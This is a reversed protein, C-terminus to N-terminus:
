TSHMFRVAVMLLNDVNFVKKSDEDTSPTMYILKSPRRFLDVPTEHKPEASSRDASVEDFWDRVDMDSLQM